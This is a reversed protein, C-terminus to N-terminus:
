VFEVRVQAPVRPLQPVLRRLELAVLRLERLDALLARHERARLLDEGAAALGVVDRRQPATPMHLM